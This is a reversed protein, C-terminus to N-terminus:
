YPRDGKVTTRHMHRVYKTQDYPQAQHLLCRNDWFVLDFQRWDHAFVFEPRIGHEYLQKLLPLAEADDMDEIGITHGEDVYLAKRGTVPHTRVIPHVAPELSALQEETLTARKSGSQQKARRYHRVYDHIARLDKIREKMDDSLADYAAYMNAFKTQGGEPPVEMGYLLSGLPPTENYSMDTHWRRGGDPLGLAKGNEVKNSLVLVERHGPLHYQDLVQLDVEGFRRSFAIHDEPTLHQDRLVIVGHDLHAKHIGRFEDDSMARVDVGMIEAGLIDSLPRVEMSM